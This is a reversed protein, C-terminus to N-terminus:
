AGTAAAPASIAYLAILAVCAPAAQALLLTRVKTTVYGFIGAVVVCILFFTAIRISSAPDDMNLAWFLGAALFLNYLGQNEALVRTKSFNLDDMDLVSQFARKGLPDWFLMEVIAFVLHLGGVIGIAWFALESM